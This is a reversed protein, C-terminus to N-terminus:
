DPVMEKLLRGTSTFSVGQSGGTGVMVAEVIPESISKQAKWTVLFNAGSGGTMDDEGVFVDVTALPALVTEEQPVYDKKLEGQSDYYEVSVVTLSETQSTNRISLNIALKYDQGNALKIHSYCPVYVVQGQSQTRRNPSRVDQLELAQSGSQQVPRDLQCGFCLFGVLIIVLLRGFTRVDNGKNDTVCLTNGVGLRTAELPRGEM